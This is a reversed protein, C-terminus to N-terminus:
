LFGSINKNTQSAPPRERADELFAVWLWFATLALFFIDFSISKWSFNQYNSFFQFYAQATWFPLDQQTMESRVRSCSPERWTVM